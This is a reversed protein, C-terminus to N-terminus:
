LNLYMEKELQSCKLFNYCLLYKLKKTKQSALIHKIIIYRNDLNLHLMTLSNIITVSESSIVLINM